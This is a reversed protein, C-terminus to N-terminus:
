SHRLFGSFIRAKAGSPIIKVRLLANNRLLGFHIKYQGSAVAWEICRRSGKRGRRGAAICGSGSSRIAGCM